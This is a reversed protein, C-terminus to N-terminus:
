APFEWAPVFAKDPVQSASIEEDLWSEHAFLATVELADDGALRTLMRRTYRDRLNPSYTRDRGFRFNLESATDIVDLWRGHMPGGLFLCPHMSPTNTASM